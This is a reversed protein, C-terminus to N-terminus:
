SLLLPICPLRPCGHSYQDIEPFVPCLYFIVPIGPLSLLLPICHLRPRGNSYRHLNYHRYAPFGPVGMPIGPLNRTSLVQTRCSKLPPVDFPVPVIIIEETSIQRQFHYNGLTLRFLLRTGAQRCVWGGIHRVHCPTNSLSCMRHLSVM